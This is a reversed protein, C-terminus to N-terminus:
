KFCSASNNTKNRVETKAASGDSINSCNRMSTKILASIISNKM